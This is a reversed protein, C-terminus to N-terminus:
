REHHERSVIATVRMAVIKRQAPALKGRPVASQTHDSSDITAKERFGAVAFDCVTENMDSIIVRCKSAQSSDGNVLGPRPRQVGDIDPPVYRAAALQRRRSLSHQVVVIARIFARIALTIQLEDDATHRRVAIVCVVRQLRGLVARGPLRIRM